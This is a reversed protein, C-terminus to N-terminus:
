KNEEKEIGKGLDVFSALVESSVPNMDEKQKPTVIKKFKM